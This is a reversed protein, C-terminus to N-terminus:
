EEGEDDAVQINLGHKKLAANVNATKSPKVPRGAAEALEPAVAIDLVRRPQVNRTQKPSFDTSHVFLVPKGWKRRMELQVPKFKVLQKPSYAFNWQVGNDDPDKLHEAKIALPYSGKANMTAGYLVVHDALVNRGAGQLTRWLRNLSAEDEPNFVFRKDSNATAGELKLNHLKDERIEVLGHKAVEWAITNAMIIAGKEIIIAVVGLM